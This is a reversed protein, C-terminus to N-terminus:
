GVLSIPADDTNLAQLSTEHWQRLMWLTWLLSDHM